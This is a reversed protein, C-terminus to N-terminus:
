QARKDHEHDQLRVNARIRTIEFDKQQRYKCGEGESERGKRIKKSVWEREIM